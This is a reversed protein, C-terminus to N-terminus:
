GPSVQEDVVYVRGGRGSRRCRKGKGTRRGGAPVSPFLSVTPADGMTGIHSVYMPRHLDILIGASGTEGTHTHRINSRGHLLRFVSGVAFSKCFDRIRVNLRYISRDPFSPTRVTLPGYESLSSSGGDARLTYLFSKDYLKGNWRM